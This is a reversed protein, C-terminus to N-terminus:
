RATSVTATKITVNRTVREIPRMRFRRAPTGEANEKLEKGEGGREVGRGPNISHLDGPAIM